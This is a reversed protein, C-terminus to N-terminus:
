TIQCTPSWAVRLEQNGLQGTAPYGNEKLSHGM